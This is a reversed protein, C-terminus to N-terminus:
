LQRWDRGLITKYVQSETMIDVLQRDLQGDDAEARIIDLAKDVPVAPKYPRDSSTLADFVDALTIMRTQVPIEKATLRKPYGTGNLKEHHGSAYTVLDKLDKTWPISNLFQYTKNVHSEIEVREHEDLTGRSIQLFHLEEATLYPEDRGDARPFSRRAVENLKIDAA